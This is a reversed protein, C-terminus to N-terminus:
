AAPVAFGARASEICFHYCVVPVTALLRILDLGPLRRPPNVASM